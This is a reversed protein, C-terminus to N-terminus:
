VGFVIALLNRAGMSFGLVVLTLILMYKENENDNNRSDIELMRIILLVLALSLPILIIGTGFISPLFSSFPHKNTYGLFDTGIYTTVSDLLFSFIAFSYIRSRLYVMGVAPSIKYIFFTLALAPVLSFVLIDPKLDAYSNYVLISIGAISFLIGTKAYMRIYNKIKGKDELYRMLLLCGFTITFMVFFILPTIFFYKVPPELIDADEIVRLISGMLIYPITAIVFNEDVKIKLKNLLKLVAYVSIFLIIIYTLMDVHNYSTDNIIGDVFNRNIFDLIGM